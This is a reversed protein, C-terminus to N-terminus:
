KQRLQSAAWLLMGRRTEQQNRRGNGIASQAILRRVESLSYLKRAGVLRYHAKGASELYRLGRATIGLLLAVECQRLCCYWESPDGTTVADIQLWVPDLIYIRGRPTAPVRISTVKRQRAWRRATGPMVGYKACFEATSFWRRDPQKTTNM